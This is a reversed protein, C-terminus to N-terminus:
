RGVESVDHLQVRNGPSPRDSQSDATCPAFLRAGELRAPLEEVRATLRQRSAARATDVKIPEPAIQGDEVEACQTIDAVLERGTRRLEPATQEPGQLDRGTDLGVGQVDEVSQVLAEERGVWAESFDRFGQGASGPDGRAVTVATEVQPHHRELGPVQEGPGLNDETVFRVERPQREPAM